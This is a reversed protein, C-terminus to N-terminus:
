PVRHRSCIPYSTLVQATLIGQRSQRARQIRGTTELQQAIDLLGLQLALKFNLVWNTQM